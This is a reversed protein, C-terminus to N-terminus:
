SGGSMLYVLYEYNKGTYMIFREFVAVIVRMSILLGLIGVIVRLPLDMILLNMQPVSKALIGFAMSNILICGMMPAALSVGQNFASSFYNIIVKILAGKLILGGIPICDFTATMVKIVLHHGNLSFFVLVGFIYLFQQLVTSSDEDDDPNIMEGSQFGTAQELQMGMVRMPIYILQSFYTLILGILAENLFMLITTWTDPIQTLATVSPSRYIFYALIASFFVKLTFPMVSSGFFPSELMFFSIRVVVFIWGLMHLLMTPYDM